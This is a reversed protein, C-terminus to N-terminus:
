HTLSCPTNGRDDGLIQQTAARMDAEARRQAGAMSSNASSMSLTIPDPVDDNEAGSESGTPVQDEDKM